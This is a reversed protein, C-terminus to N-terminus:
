HDPRFYVALPGNLSFVVYAHTTTGHGGRDPQQSLVSVGLEQIFLYYQGHKHELTGQFRRPSGESGRYACRPEAPLMSSLAQRRLQAFIANADTYSGSQFLAVARYFQRLPEDRYRHVSLVAELHGLLERWKVAGAVRDIRWHIELDAFVAHMEPSIEKGAQAIVGRVEDLYIRVQNFDSGKGSIVADDIIRRAAAEFGVQQGSRRFIGLAWDKLNDDEPVLQLIKRQLDGLMSLDKEYHSRARPSTGIYQMARDIESLAESVSIAAAPTRDNTARKALEFFLGAVVHALHPNFFGPNSAQRAHDQIAELAVEPKMSEARVMDLITAAMSTHIHERRADRESGPYVPAELANTLQGYAESLRAPGGQKQMWIGKHHEIVRDAHPLAKQATEYLGMGQEFTLRTELKSRARVLVDVAFERYVMSGVSCAELLERLVRVEGSHTSIGGNVLDLLVRNVIENRTWFVITQSEVDEADYLLGWLPRGNESMDLWEDYQIGLARVLVEIPLGIDLSSTVTVFEYARRAVSSGAVSSAIAGIRERTGGLRCYEDRLSESLQFKTEPVLYWLSCLIDGVNSSRVEKVQREADVMSPAINLRVLLKCLGAQEEDDLLFGLDFEEDPRIGLSTEGHSGSFYDSNRVAFIVSVPCPCSEFCRMLEAADIRIQWPDDCFIAIRLDKRNAEPMNVVERSFERFSRAWNGFISRRCWLAIVGAQATEVAARKLLTTKGTAADGRLVISTTKESTRPTLIAGVLPDTITRRLDLEYQFPQWDIAVPRFLADVLQPMHSAAHTEDSPKDPPVVSVVSAVKSLASKVDAAIGAPMLAAPAAGAQGIRKIAEALERISADVLRVDFSACLARITPDALPSDQKLFYIKLFSPKAQTALLSLLKRTLDLDVHTGVFFLPADRCFDAATRMLPLWIQERRLLESASVALTSDPDSSEMNGLLKYVPISRPPILQAPADVVTLATSQPRADLYNRFAAEFLMDQCLSICASWVPQALYSLDLPGVLRRLEVTYLQKLALAAEPDELFLRDVLESLSQLGDISLSTQSQFKSVASSAADAYAGAVVTAGSGICLAPARRNTSIISQLEVTQVNM